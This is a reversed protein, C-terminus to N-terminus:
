AQNDEKRNIITVENTHINIIISPKSESSSPPSTGHRETFGLAKREETLPLTNTQNAKKRTNRANLAADVNRLNHWRNDFRDGNIHDVIEPDEDTMYKWILRHAQYSEGKYIIKIYGSKELRGCYGESIHYERAKGKEKKPRHRVFLGTSPYYTFDRQLLYQEPLPLRKSSIRITM